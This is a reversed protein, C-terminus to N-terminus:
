PEPRGFCGSRWEGDARSGILKLGASQYAKQVQLFKNRLIGALVLLGDAALRALIRNRETLLLNSILNACILSYRQASQRRLVTVDQHRLVIQESVRNRRANAQATRLAESDFDIAHVPAYGLKAAAIALIGSGTGIDLFSQQRGPTRRAVLQRLCFGTTPHQGTGFSLGPDIVVVKQGPRAPQQIWSPKILLRSGIEIPKFHKKWSESWDERAVGECSIEAPGPDLGFTRIRELDEGLRHRETTVLPRGIYASVVSLESGAATYTSVAQGLLRELTAAVVEEASITTIVSVRWLRPRKM